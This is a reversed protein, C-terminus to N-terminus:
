RNNTHIEKVIPVNARKTKIFSKELPVNGADFAFLIGEDNQAAIQCLADALGVGPVVRATNVRHEM